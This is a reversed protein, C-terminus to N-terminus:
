FLFYKFFNVFASIGSCVFIKKEPVSDFLLYTNFKFLFPMFFQNFEPAFNLFSLIPVSLKSASFGLGRLRSVV